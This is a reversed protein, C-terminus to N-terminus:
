QIVCMYYCYNDFEYFHYLVIMYYAYCEKEKSSTNLIEIHYKMLWTLLSSNDYVHVTVTHFKDHKSKKTNLTSKIQHNIQIWAGIWFETFACKVTYKIQRLSEVVLSALFFSYMALHLINVTIKIVHTQYM